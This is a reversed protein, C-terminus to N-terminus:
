DELIVKENINLSRHEGLNLIINEDTNPVLTLLLPWLHKNSTIVDLIDTPSTMTM